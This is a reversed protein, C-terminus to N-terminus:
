AHGRRELVGALARWGLMCLGNFCLSVIVFSVAVGRDALHRLVMGVAVTALWVVVGSTLLRGSALSRRAGLVLLWGVAAGILFPWATTLVGVLADGEDHSRRGVAAFVLVVVADLVPYLLAPM